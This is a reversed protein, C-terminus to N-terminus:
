PRGVMESPEREAIDRTLVFDRIVLGEDAQSSGAIATSAALALSFVAGTTVRRATRLVAPPRFSFEPLSPKAIKPPSTLTKVIHSWKEFNSCIL